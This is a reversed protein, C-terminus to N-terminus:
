AKLEDKFNYIRLVYKKADEFTHVISVEASRIPEIAGRIKTKEFINAVIKLTEM